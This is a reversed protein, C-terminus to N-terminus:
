IYKIEVSNNNITLRISKISNLKFSNGDYCFATLETDITRAIMMYKYRVNHNGSTITITNSTFLCKFDISLNEIELIKTDIVEHIIKKLNSHKCIIYKPPSKNLTANWLALTANIIEHNM